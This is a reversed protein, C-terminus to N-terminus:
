ECTPVGGPQDSVGALWDDFAQTDPACLGTNAIALRQLDAMGTFGDPLAGSLGTNDHLSLRTLGSLNGLETPLSGSLQNRALGIISLSPLSGLQSPISGSLQNRNLALRTLNTLNGLQTPLSGSLSNGDLVLEQLLELGGLDTPLTGVLNNNRLALKTVRGEDDTTVGHWDGIPADGLWNENNTWNAGDTARYLAMLEPRDVVPDPLVAISFRLSVTAGEADTATYMYDVRDQTETPKALLFRSEPDFTVGPPLDPTITYTVPAVGGTAQPLNTAGNHVNQFWNYNYLRADGFSLPVEEIYIVLDPVTITFTLATADGDQDRATYTYTTVPFAITPAGNLTRAGADFSIGPPLAPEISYALRGNGGTAAPLQVAGIDTNLTWTQGAVTAAGFTPQRDDVVSITFTQQAIQGGTDSVTYTYTAAAQKATPTGTIARTAPDFSLGAPLTTPNLSYTRVGSGGAAAPLRFTGLDKQHAFEQSPVERNFRLEPVFNGNLDLVNKATTARDGGGTEDQSKIVWRDSLPFDGSQSCGPLRAVKYSQWAIPNHFTDWCFRMEDQRGLEDTVTYTFHSVRHNLAQNVKLEPDGALTRAGPNFRLGTIWDQVLHRLRRDPFASVTLHYTLDGSGGRAEPLTLDVDPTQPAADNMLLPTDGFVFKPGGKGPVGAITGSYGSNCEALLDPVKFYEEGFLGLRELLHDLEDYYAICFNISDFDGHQDTVTLTYQHLHRYAAIANSTGRFHTPQGSIVRTEPNFTVGSILEPSISYTLTGEGGTAEPLTVPAIDQYRFWLSPPLNDLGYKEPRDDYVTRDTFYPITGSPAGPHDQHFEQPTARGDGNFDAKLLPYEAATGFHWDHFDWHGYIGTNGTPGTLQSTTKGSAGSAGGRGVASVGPQATADFYSAHVYDVSGYNSASGILGGRVGNPSNVRAWSYADIVDLGPSRYSTGGVLGGVHNGGSVSGGAYAAKIVGGANHGVLGGVYSAGKGDVTVHAWSREISGGANNGVLGGINLGGNVGTFSGTVFSERITGANHGALGGADRVATVNVKALGLGRVFADAGLAGFLGGKSGPSPRNVYLNSITNGNGEFIANYPNDTGGIPAWGQGQSLDHGAFNLNATLEYGICGGPCEVQWHPIFLGKVLVTQDKFAENWATYGDTGGSLASIANGDGEPDYRLANLQEITSVDILRAHYNPDTTPDNPDVEFERQPAFEHGFEEVTSNGDGNFDVKLAPYDRGTGFDWAHDWQSFIGVRSARTAIKLVARAQGTLDYSATVRGGSNGRLVFGASTEAITYSHKVHGGGTLAGVLGGVNSAGTVSGRSYANVIEGGTKEGVLGGANSGGRGDQGSQVVIDVWANQIKGSSRGAIGGVRHNGSVMGVVFVNTITGGNNGAIVGTVQDSRSGTHGRVDADAIGLNKVQAAGSLNRFLGVHHDNPRQMHLNAIVHGNGDFVGDYHDIPRWNDIVDALYLDQTLEYGQCGEPCGHPASPDSPNHWLIEFARDWGGFAEWYDIQQQTNLVDGRFVSPAGDGERDWRIANLQEATSVNILNPDDTWGDVHDAHAPPTPQVLALALAGM